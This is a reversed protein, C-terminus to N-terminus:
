CKRRPRGSAAMASSSSAPKRRCEPGELEVQAGNGRRELWDIFRMLFPTTAMSLTVVAGFLSAAEPMIM